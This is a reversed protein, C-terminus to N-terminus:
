TEHARLHTYSVTGSELAFHDGSKATFDDNLRARVIHLGPESIAHIEMGVPRREMADLVRLHTESAFPGGAADGDVNGKPQM